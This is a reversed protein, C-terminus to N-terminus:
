QIAVRRGQCRSDASQSRRAPAIWELATQEVPWGHVEVVSTPVDWSEPCLTKSM